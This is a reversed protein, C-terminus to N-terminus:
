EYSKNWDTGFIKPCQEGAVDMDYTGPYHRLLSRAQERVETPVRPTQKPDCLKLLFEATNMVANRREYNLTM